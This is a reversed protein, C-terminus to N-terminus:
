DYGPYKPRHGAGLRTPMWLGCRDFRTRSSIRYKSGPRGATPLRCYKSGRIRKSRTKSKEGPKKPKPKKNANDTEEETESSRGSLGNLWGTKEDVFNITFFSDGTGTDVTVWAGPAKTNSCSACLLIAVAFLVAPLRKHM